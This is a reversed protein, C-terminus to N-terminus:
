AVPDAELFTRKARNTLRNQTVLSHVACTKLREPRMQEEDCSFLENVICYVVFCLLLFCRFHVHHVCDDKQVGEGCEGEGREIGVRKRGSCFNFFIALRVPVGLQRYDRLLSVIGAAVFLGSGPLKVVCESL